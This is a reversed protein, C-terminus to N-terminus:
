TSKNQAKVRKDGKDAKHRLIFREYYSLLITTLPLAIIMGSIGMLSGWVSLSLLIIVPNMGTVKGMIKPVLLFDEIIQAVCVVAVGTAMIIWFNSGTEAANLAALLTMPIFALMQMYPILNLVGILLGLMLPMPFGTIFFGIACLVGVCFAVLSQGRFYKSMGEELDASLQRAFDRYKVPILKIWGNALAEYDLLIFFLYLLIIFSAVIGFIVDLSKAMFTWLQPVIAELMSKLDGSEIFRGIDGQSLHERIFDGIIAPVSQAEPSHRIFDALLDKAKVSEEIIPPIFFMIALFIAAFMLVLTLIIAPIKSRIRMHRHFFKVIPHILYAVLWAIFFPLLVSSLRNVLLIIGTIVAITAAIRIFRDFTIKEEFM